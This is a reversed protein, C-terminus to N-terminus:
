DELVNWGTFQQAISESVLTIQIHSQAVRGDGYIREFTPIGGSNKAVLNLSSMLEM